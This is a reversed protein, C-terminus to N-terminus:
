QYSRIARVPDLRVAKWGPYLSAVIATGIVMLVVWVYDLPPMVPRIVTEMGFAALGSSVASLDIGTRGALAVSASALGIGCVGGVLSLLVAEILVMAFVPGPRMGLAIVVGLERTRELVGMLMTNTVGFVLSVLIVVFFIYNTQQTSSETLAVEPSLDRWTAVDLGPYARRLGAAAAHLDGIDRLRVAIEHVDDGLAFDRALDQRQVFVSTEDFTLNATEFIGVIRFAGASIAGDGGQGTIVMKQGLRLRLKDMLRRSVVAANHTGNPFYGGEVIHASVDTVTREAAPDIGFVLVGRSTTASSAMASLVARESASEVRPMARVATLVSDGDPIFSTVDKHARFGRAHIQLHSLRTRIAGEVQQAAMGNMFAMEFVGAWIGFAIAAILVGSRRTNRWVNRWAIAAIM